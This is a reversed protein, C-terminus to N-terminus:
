IVARVLRSTTGVRFRDAGGPIYTDLLDREGLHEEISFGWKRLLAEMEEPTFHSLVPEGIKEMLKRPALAREEEGWMSEPLVYNFVVETGPALSALRGLTAEVASPTLYGAVNMWSVFAPDSRIFGESELRQLFDDSEFNVAVFSLGAPIAISEKELIELKWAQTEELDVEFVRLKPLLDSRRFAFTELGAGLIVYQSVGRDLSDLLLDEAYRYRVPATGRSDPASRNMELLARGEEGIFRSALPDDFIPSDLSSHRARSMATNVSTGKAGGELKRQGALNTIRHPPSEEVECLLVFTAGGPAPITLFVEFESITEVELIPMAFGMKILPAPPQRQRTPGTFHEDLDKESFDEAQSAERLDKLRRGIPSDPLSVENGAETNASSM